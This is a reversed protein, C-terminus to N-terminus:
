RRPLGTARADFLLLLDIFDDNKVVIRLRRELHEM